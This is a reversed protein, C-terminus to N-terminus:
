WVGKVTKPKRRDEDSHPDNFEKELKTVFSPKEKDCELSYYPLETLRKLYSKSLGFKRSMPCSIEHALEGLNGSVVVVTQETAFNAVAVMTEPESGQGATDLFIHTFHGAQLGAAHLRAASMCTSVILKYESLDELPPCYYIEEEENYCCYPYIEPPVADYLNRFKANLRFIGMDPIPSGIFRQLLSDSTRNFPTCALIRSNPNKEHIQLIAETITATTGTHPKGYVLYPPSSNCKLIAMVASLQDSNLLPNFPSDLDVDAEGHDTSAQVTREPSEYPFLFSNSLDKIKAIAHHGRIINSRNYSFRAEYEINPNM